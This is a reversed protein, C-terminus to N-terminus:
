SFGGHNYQSIDLINDTDASYLFRPTRSKRASDGRGQTFFPPSVPHVHQLRWCVRAQAEHVNASESHVHDHPYTGVSFRANFHTCFVLRVNNGHPIAVDRRLILRSHRTCTSGSGALIAIARQAVLSASKGNTALGSFRRNNPQQANLLPERLPLLKFPLNGHTKM